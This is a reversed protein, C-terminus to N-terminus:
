TKLLMPWGCTHTHFCGIGYGKDASRPICIQVGRMDEAVFLAQSLESSPRVKLYIGINRKTGDDIDPSAHSGAANGEGSM